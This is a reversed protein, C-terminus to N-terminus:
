EVKKNIDIVYIIKEIEKKAKLLTYYYKINMIHNINIMLYFGIFILFLEYSYFINLIYFIIIINILFSLIIGYFISDTLKMIFRHILSQELEYYKRGKIRNLLSIQYYTLVIDILSFVIIIYYNIVPFVM